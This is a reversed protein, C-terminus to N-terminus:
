ACTWLSAVTHHVALEPMSYKLRCADVQPPLAFPRHFVALTSRRTAVLMITTSSRERIICIPCSAWPYAIRHFAPKRVLQQIDEIIGTYTDRALDLAANIEPKVATRTCTLRGLAFHFTLENLKM